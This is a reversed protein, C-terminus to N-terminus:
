RTLYLLMEWDPFSFRLLKKMLSLGWAPRRFIPYKMFLSVAKSALFEINCPM